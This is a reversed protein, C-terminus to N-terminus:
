LLTSGTYGACIAQSCVFGLGRRPFLGIAKCVFGVGIAQPSPLGAFWFLACVRVLGDCM